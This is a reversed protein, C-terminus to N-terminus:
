RCMRSKMCILNVTNGSIYDAILRDIKGFMKNCSNYFLNSEQMGACHQVFADYLQHPTRTNGLDMEVKLWAYRCAVCDIVDMNSRVKNRSKINNIQATTKRKRGIRRKSRGTVRNREIDSLLRKKNSDLAKIQNVITRSFDTVPAGRVGLKETNITSRVVYDDLTPPRGLNEFDDPKQPPDVDVGTMPPLEPPANKSKIASTTLAKVKTAIGVGGKATAAATSAASGLTKEAVALLAKSDDANELMADFKEDAELAKLMNFGATHKESLLKAAEIDRDVQSAEAQMRKQKEIRNMALLAEPSGPDNIELSALVNTEITDARGVSM